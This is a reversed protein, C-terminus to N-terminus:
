SKTLLFPEKLFFDVNKRHFLSFDIVSAGKSGIYYLFHPNKELLAMKALLFSFCLLLSM